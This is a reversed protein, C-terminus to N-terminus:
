PYSITRTKDDKTKNSRITQDMQPNIAHHDSRNFNRKSKTSKMKKNNTTFPHFLAIIHPKINHKTHKKNNIFQKISQM